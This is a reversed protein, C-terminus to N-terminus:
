LANGRIWHHYVVRDVDRDVKPGYRDVPGLYRTCGVVVDILSNRSYARCNRRASKIAKCSRGKAKREYIRVNLLVEIGGWGQMLIRECGSRDLVDRDYTSARTIGRIKWRCHGDRVARSGPCSGVSNNHATRNLANHECITPLVVRWGWSDGNSNRRCPASKGSSGDGIAM